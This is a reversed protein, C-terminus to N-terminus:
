RVAAVMSNDLWLRLRRRLGNGNIPPPPQKRKESLLNKATKSTIRRAQKAVQQWPEQLWSSRSERKDKELAMELPVTFLRFQDLEPSSQQRQSPTPHSELLSRTLLKNSGKLCSRPNM